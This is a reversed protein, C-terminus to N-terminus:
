RRRVGLREFVMQTFSYAHKEDAPHEIRSVERWDLFNVDPFFADAGEIETHVRTFYLRDAIEMGYGYLQSGGIIFVEDSSVSASKVAEDVGPVVEAGPADYGEQRTVVINRRGPLPRRAEPISEWTKRGMIVPKGMTTDRFYKWEDPLHWPMTGGRGIANREDAAVILSIIM